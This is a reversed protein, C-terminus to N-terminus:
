VYENLDIANIDGHSGHAVVEGNKIVLLQPSQHIVKFAYSTENSVERHSHLDLYYLDIEEATFGYSKVFTNLVMRSIGCTVSHKFVVQTKIGPEKKIEELQDLTVLPIWPVKKEKKPKNKAKGFLSDLVGM